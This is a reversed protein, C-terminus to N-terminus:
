KDLPYDYGYPLCGRLWEPLERGNGGIRHFSEMMVTVAEGLRLSDRKGDFEKLLADRKKQLDDVEKQIEEREDKLKQISEKVGTERKQFDENMWKEQNKIEEERKRLRTEWGKLYTPDYVKELESATKPM